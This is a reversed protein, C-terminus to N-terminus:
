GDATDPCLSALIATGLPDPGLSLEGVNLGPCLSTFIVLEDIPSPGLIVFGGPRLSTCIDMGETGPGLIVFGGPCLSTLIDLGVPGPGLIDLM